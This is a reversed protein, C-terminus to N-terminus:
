LVPANFAVGEELNRSLRETDPKNHFCKTVEPKRWHSQLNIVTLGGAFRM